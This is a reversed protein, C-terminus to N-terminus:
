NDNRLICCKSVIDPSFRPEHIIDARASSRGLRRGDASVAKSQASRKKRESARGRLGRVAKKVWNLETLMYEYGVWMMHLTARSVIPIHEVYMAKM